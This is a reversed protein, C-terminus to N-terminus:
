NTYYIISFNMAGASTAAVNLLQGTVNSTLIFLTTASINGFCSVQIDATDSPAPVSTSALQCPGINSSTSGVNFPLGIVQLNGTSTGGSWGITCTLIVCNGIRTYRGSTSSYTSSGVTSSGTIVPTWTGEQYWNLDTAGNAFQVEHCNVRRYRLPTSNDGLDYTNTTIPTVTNSYLQSKLAWQNSTNITWLPINTSTSSAGNVTTNYAFRCVALDQALELQNASNVRITNLTANGAANEWLIYSANALTAFAIQAALKGSTVSGNALSATNITGAEIANTGHIPTGITYHDHNSLNVMSQRFSISGSVYNLDNAQPIYVTINGNYAEM